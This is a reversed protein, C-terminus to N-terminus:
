GWSKLLSPQDSSLDVAGIFVSVGGRWFGLNQEQALRIPLSAQGKIHIIEKFTEGNWM